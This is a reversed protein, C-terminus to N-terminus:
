SEQEQSGQQQVMANRRAATSSRSSREPRASAPPEERSDIYERVPAPVHKEYLKLMVDDLEATLVTEKKGMYQQLANLKEADFSIQISAKKM